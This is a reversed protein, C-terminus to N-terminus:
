EICPVGHETIIVQLCMPRHLLAGLAVELNTRYRHEIAREIFVNPVAVVAHQDDLEVLTTPDLWTRREKGDLHLHAIVHEWTAAYEAESDHPANAAEESTPASRECTSSCEHELDDLEGRNRVVNMAGSSVRENHDHEQQEQATAAHAVVITVTIPRGLLLGLEHAIM